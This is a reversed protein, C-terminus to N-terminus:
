KVRLVQGPMIVPKKGLNNLKIINEVTTSNAQAIRYLSDGKRVKYKKITQASNNNLSKTDSKSADTENGTVNMDEKQNQMKSIPNYRYVILNRGVPPRKSNSKNWKKLEPTGVGYHTSISAWTEGKRVKHYIKETGGNSNTESSFTTSPFFDEMKHLVISDKLTIYDPIINVPLKLSYVDSKGPIIDNKYQPNLVRLEEISIGLVESIQGLHIDERILVTDTLTPFNISSPYIGHDKYYNMVYTAAIYAPIYGRTEKPLYEYIEWYDTKGGARRIAKNINGPGCNYAAIALTWDKYIGYLDRLYNAAAKSSKVPDRREDVLSNIRLDYLKGTSYMFQWLGSAGMRSVAQPNLASEIITLYKLELPVGAQDLIEEFIPFYYQSLSLMVNISKKYRNVYFEIYNRVKDNYSMPVVSPISRLRRIFISDPIDLASVFEKKEDFLFNKNQIKLSKNYFLNSLLSDFNEEYSELIYKEDNKEIQAFVPASIIILFLFCFINKKVM